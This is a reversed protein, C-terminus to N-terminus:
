LGCISVRREEDDRRDIFATVERLREERALDDRRARVLDVLDIPTPFDGKHPRQRLFAGCSWAFEDITVQDAGLALLFGSVLDSDFPKGYTNLSAHLPKLLSSVEEAFRVYDATALQQSQSLEM